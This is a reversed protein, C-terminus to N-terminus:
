AAETSQQRPVGIHRFWPGCVCHPHITRIRVHFPKKTNPGLADQAEVDAKTHLRERDGDKFLRKCESCARPSPIRFILSDPPLRAISAAWTGASRCDAIETRLVRESDRQVGLARDVRALDRAAELPHTRTALSRETLGRVYEKENVWEQTTRSFVPRMYEAAHQRAYRIASLEQTSLPHESALRVLQPFPVEASARLQEYMLGMRYALGPFDLMEPPSFGISQLRRKVDMRVDLGVMRATSAHSLDFLTQELLDADLHSPVEARYHTLLEDLSRWIADRANTFRDRAARELARLFWEEFPEELEAEAVDPMKLAKALMADAHVWYIGSSPFMRRYLALAERPTPAAAPITVRTGTLEM